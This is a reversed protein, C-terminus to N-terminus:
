GNDEGLGGYVDPEFRVKVKNGTAKLRIGLNSAIDKISAQIIGRNLDKFQKYETEKLNIGSRIEPITLIFFGFKQIKWMNRQILECMMYRRNSSIKDLKADYISFKGAEMEGSILPIIKKNFQVQITYLSRDVIFDYILSTHWTRNDDLPIKVTTEKYKTVLEILEEYAKSINVNQKSAYNRVDIPYYKAENFLERQYNGQLCSNLFRHEDISEFKKTVEFMLDHKLVINANNIKNTTM